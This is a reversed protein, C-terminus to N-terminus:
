DPPRLESVLLLPAGLREVVHLLRGEVGRHDGDTAATLLVHPNEEPSVARYFATSCSGTGFYYKFPVSMNGGVRIPERIESRSYHRCVWEVGEKYSTFWYDTEYRGVASALGGAVLRNFYVYQYPHLRVMDAAVLTLCGVLVGMAPIRVLAPLRCRLAAGVSVGALVALIPVVFLLHRVCDYLPMRSLITWALPLAALSFVWLIELLRRGWAGAASRARLLIAVGLAGLGFAPLYFEPLTLAFLKPVYRRPLDGSTIGEGEFLVPSGHFGSFARLARLPHRLPDVQAWPWCALMVVWAIALLVALTLSVRFAERRSPFVGPGKARASAGWLLAAFGVLVIGNVRVGATLGVAVGALVIRPTLLRQGDDAARLISWAALAYFAAFPIDKPNAFCHGYYMPTLSLFLASLFGAAAGCLRRALGWAAVIGALGFAANVLHRTDYIGLPSFGEVAQAALEFGGGYLFLNNAETASRDGGPTAYWRVIRRGYRHQVGEDVTIGYDLFTNGVLVVLGLLLVASAVDWRRDQGSGEPLGPPSV